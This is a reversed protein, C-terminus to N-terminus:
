SRVGRRGMPLRDATTVGKVSGLIRRVREERSDDPEFLSQQQAPRGLEIAEINNPLAYEAPPWPEPSQRCLKSKRPTEPPQTVM